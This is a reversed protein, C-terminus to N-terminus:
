QLRAQEQGQQALLQDGTLQREFDKGPKLTFSQSRNGNLEVGATAFDYGDAQAWVHYSGAALPPFFYNGQEDTFVSTTINESADNKASITVGAMREGSTSKVSGSLLVNSAAQAAPLLLIAALAVSGTLALASLLVKKM